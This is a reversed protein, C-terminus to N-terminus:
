EDDSMVPSGARRWEQVLLEGEVSDYYSAPAIPTLVVLMRETTKWTPAGVERRPSDATFIVESKGRAPLVHEDVAVRVQLHKGVEGSSLVTAWAVLDACGVVGAGSSLGAADSSGNGACSTVMLLAAGAQILANRMGMLHPM